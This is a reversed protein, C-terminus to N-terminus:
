PAEGTAKHTHGPDPKIRQVLLTRSILMGAVTLLLQQWSHAFLWYLILLVALTRLLLSLGLWVGPYKFQQLRRLTLWLGGYYFFGLALGVLLPYVFSLVTQTLTM